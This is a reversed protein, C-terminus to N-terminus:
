DKEHCGRIWEEVQKTLERLDEEDFVGLALRHNTKVFLKNYEEPHRGCFSAAIACESRLLSVEETLSVRERRLSAM